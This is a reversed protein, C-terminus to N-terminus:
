RVAGRLGVLNEDSGLVDSLLLGNGDGDTNLARRHQGGAAPQLKQAPVDPDRQRHVPGPTHALKINRAPTFTNVARDAGITGISIM